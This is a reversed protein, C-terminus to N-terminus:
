DRSVIEEWINKMVDSDFLNLLTKKFDEFNMSKQSQRIAEARAVLLKCFVNRLHPTTMSSILVPGLTSSEYIKGLKPSEGIFKGYEFIQEVTGSIEVGNSFRYTISSNSM